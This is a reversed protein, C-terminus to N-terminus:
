PSQDAQALALQLFQRRAEESLTQDRRDPSNQVVALAQQLRTVNLGSNPFLRAFREVMERAKAIQGTQYYFLGLASYGGQWEPMLDVARRLFEEALENKGDVAAHVGMGWCLKGSNPVRNLGQYLTKEAARRNGARLHTLALLLYCQENEPNRQIAAEFIKTAEETRGLHAYTDALLALTADDQEASPTAEQIVELARQYDRVHFHANALDYRAEDSSPDAAVAMQFHEIAEPYMRYQALLVGIGVATRVDGKSLRNLEVIWKKAEDRQGLKLYTEALLYLTSPHGPNRSAMHLLQELELRIREQNSLQSRQDFTEIVRQFPYPGPSPEKSLTEFIKFDREAAETLRLAREATALKYYVPAPKSTLKACRRLLPLAEAHKKQSMKVSALEFMAEDYSPNSELALTLFKEAAAHNGLKNEIYGLNYLCAANKPDVRLGEEFHKRAENYRGMHRYCLGMFNYAGASPDLRILTQFEEIAKNVKGAAFYSEGLAAHLDPRNPALKTGQQLLQIADEFYSQQMSIRALLFLIDTNQPALRQAKVAMEMAQVYKRQDLYLKGLLYLTQASDPELSLARVLVAEGKEPNSTRLYAQGLNFLIEFTRPSLADALEFEHVAAEYQREAALMVGLSFHVRVDDKGQASLLRSVELGKATQDARFYAQALSLM